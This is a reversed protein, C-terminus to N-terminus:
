NFKKIKEINEFSSVDEIKNDLSVTDIYSFIGKSRFFVAQYTENSHIYGSGSDIFGKIGIKNCILFIQNKNFGKILLGWLKSAENNFFSWTSDIDKRFLYQYDSNSFNSEIYGRIVTKISIPTETLNLLKEYYKKLENPTDNNTIVGDLNDLVYIYLLNAKKFGTFPLMSISFESDLKKDFYDNYPYTYLGKPTDFHNIPNILTVNQNNRFSLFINDGYSKANTIINNIRDNVSKKKNFDSNSRKENINININNKNM